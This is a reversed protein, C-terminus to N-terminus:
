VQYHHDLCLWTKTEQVETPVLCGFLEESRRQGRRILTDETTLLGLLDLVPLSSWSPLSEEPLELLGSATPHGPRSTPLKMLPHRFLKQKQLYVEPPVDKVHSGVELHNTSLSIFGEYNPYLMVYGRLYAM